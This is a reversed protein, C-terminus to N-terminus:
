NGLIYTIVERLRSANFPKSLFFQNKNLTVETPDVSGSAIIIPMDPYLEELHKKTLAGNMVPMLWDLIALDFPESRGSCNKLAEMGNAATTVAFGFDKLTHSYFNRIIEEDDVVLVTRM